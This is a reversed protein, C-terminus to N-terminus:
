EPKKSSKSEVESDVLEPGEPKKPVPPAIPLPLTVDIDSKGEVWTSVSSDKSAVQAAAFMRAGGPLSAYYGANQENLRRQALADREAAEMRGQASVILAEATKEAEAVKAQGRLQALRTAELAEVAPGVAEVQVIEARAIYFGLKGFLGLPNIKKKDYIPDGTTEDLDIGNLKKLVTWFSEEKEGDKETTSAKIRKVDNFDKNTIYSRLASQVMANFLAVPDKNLFFARTPNLHLVTMVSDIKVRINGMIEADDLTVPYPFQFFFDSVNEKRSVILYKPVKEGDKKGEEREDVQRFESWKWDVFVKVTAYFGIWVVGLYHKLLGSPDIKNKDTVLGFCGKGDGEETKLKWGAVNEIVNQVVGELVVFSFSGPRPIPAFYRYIEGKKIDKDAQKKIIAGIGYLTLALLAAFGLFVTTFILLFM